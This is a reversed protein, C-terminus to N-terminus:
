LRNATERSALLLIACGPARVGLAAVAEEVDTPPVATADLVVVDVPVTGATAAVEDFDALEALVEVDDEAALVAALGNRLLSMPEVLIVRIVSGDTCTKRDAAAAMDM